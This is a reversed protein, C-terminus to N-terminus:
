RRLFRSFSPVLRISCPLLQLHRICFSLSLSFSRTLCVRASVDQEAMSDYRWGVDRRVKKRQSPDLWECWGGVWWCCCDTAFCGLWGVFWGVLWGYVCVIHINVVQAVVDDVVEIDVVVVVVQVVVVVHVVKERGRDRDIRKVTGGGKTGKGTCKVKGAPVAHAVGVDLVVLGAIM